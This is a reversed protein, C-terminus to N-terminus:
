FRIIDRMIAWVAGPRHIAKELRQYIKRCVKFSSFPLHWAKNIVTIVCASTLYHIHNAIELKLLWNSPTIRQPTVPHDNFRLLRSVHLTAKELARNKFVYPLLSQRLGTCETAKNCHLTAWNSGPLALEYFLSLSLSHHISVNITIGAPVSGVLVLLCFLAISCIKHTVGLASPVNLTLDCM